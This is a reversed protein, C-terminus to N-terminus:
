STRAAKKLLDAFTTAISQLVTETVGPIEKLEDALDLGETLILIERSNFFIIQGIQLTSWIGTLDTSFPEHGNTDFMLRKFYSPYKKKLQYFIVHKQHAARLSFSKAQTQRQYVILLATILATQKQISDIPEM